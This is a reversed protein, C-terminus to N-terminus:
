VFQMTIVTLLKLYTVFIGVVQQWDNLSTLVTDTLTFSVNEINTGIRFQFQKPALIKNLQMHQNLRNFM